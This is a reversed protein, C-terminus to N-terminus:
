KAFLRFYQVKRIYLTYMYLSLTAASYIGEATHVQIMEDITSDEPDPYPRNCECYLGAFNQGYTNLENEDEKM